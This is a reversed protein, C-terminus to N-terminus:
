STVNRNTFFLFINKEYKKKQSPIFCSATGTSDESIPKLKMLWCGSSTPISFPIYLKTEKVSLFFMLVTFGHCGHWNKHRILTVNPLLVTPMKYPFILKTLSEWLKCYKKMKTSMDKENLPSHDGYTYSTFAYVWAIWFLYVHPCARLVSKSM